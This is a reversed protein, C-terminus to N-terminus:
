KTCYNGRTFKMWRYWSAGLSSHKKITQKSHKYWRPALILITVLAQRNDHYNKIIIVTSWMIVTGLIGFSWTQNMVMSRFFALVSDFVEGKFIRDMRQWNKSPWPSCLNCLWYKCSGLVTNRFTNTKAKQLKTSFQVVTYRREWVQFLSISFTTSTIQLSHIQNNPKGTHHYFVNLNWTLLRCEHYMTHM